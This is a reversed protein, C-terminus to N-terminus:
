RGACARSSRRPSAALPGAIEIGLGAADEEGGVCVSLRGDAGDIGSANVVVEVLGPIRRLLLEVGDEVIKELVPLCTVPRGKFAQADDPVAPREVVVADAVEKRAIMHGVAPEIYGGARFREFQKLVALEIGLLQGHHKEGVARREDIRIELIKSAAHPQAYLSGLIEVVQHHHACARCAKGGRDVPGTLPEIRTTMSGSAGPPCAPEMRM